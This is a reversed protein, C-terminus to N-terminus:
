MYIKHKSDISESDYLAESLFNLQARYSPQIHLQRAHPRDRTWDKPGTVNKQQSPWSIMEVAM